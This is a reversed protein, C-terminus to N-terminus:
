LKIDPRLERPKLGTAKSVAGLWELPVQRWQHVGQRTHGIKAALPGYGGAAKVARQLAPTRKFKAV